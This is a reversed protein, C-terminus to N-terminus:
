LLLKRFFDVENSIGKMKVMKSYYKQFIKDPSWGFLGM